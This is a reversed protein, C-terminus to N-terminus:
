VAIDAPTEEEDPLEPSPTQTPEPPVPAATPEPTASPAITPSPTAMFSYDPVIDPGTFTGTLKSIVREYEPTGKDYPTPCYDNYSTVSSIRCPIFESGAKELSGDAARRFSIQVIATDMDRPGSNGGFCFNGMSYLILGKGYEEVPQLVHPHSGYVIDVGADVYSHALRKQYDSPRYTGEDGWHLAFIVLEAGQERLAAVIAAAREGSMQYARDACYVGLKLGSKTTFVGYKAETGYAIGYGDLAKLTDDLGATGYDTTHNNATTLYEFGANVLMEANKTPAKFHFMSASSLKSDSLICELNGFSAEDGDLYPKVNKYCYSMDGKVISDFHASLNSNAITNDGVFSLTYITETPAPTPPLTPAVTRAPTPTPTPEDRLETRLLILIALAVCLILFGAIFLTKKTRENM